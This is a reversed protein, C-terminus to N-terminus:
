QLQTITLSISGNAGDGGNGNSSSGGGGGSGYNFSSNGNKFVSTGGSGGYFGGGGGGGLIISSGSGGQGADIIGGGKGGDSNRPPIILYYNEVFSKLVNIYNNNGPFGGQLILQILNYVNVNNTLSTFGPLNSLPLEFEDLVYPNSDLFEQLIPITLANGGAGGLISGGGGGGGNSLTFNLGSSFGTFGNNFIVPLSEIHYSFLGKMPVPTYSGTAVQKIFVTLIDNQKANFTFSDTYPSKNSPDLIVVDSKYIETNGLKFMYQYFGTNGSPSIIFDLALYVPTDQQFIFNELGESGTASGSLSIIPGTPIGFYFGTYGTSSPITTEVASNGYVLPSSINCDFYGTISNVAGTQSVLVEMYEGSNFPVTFEPVDIVGTVPITFNKFIGTKSIFDFNIYCTSGAPQLQYSLDGTLNVVSMNSSKNFIIETGTASIGNSIEKGNLSGKPNFTLFTGSPGKPIDISNSIFNGAPGSNIVINSLFEAGGAGGAGGIGGTQGNQGPNGGPCIIPVFVSSLDNQQIVNYSISSTQGKTADTSNYLAGKGGAGVTYNITEGGRIKFPQNLIGYNVVANILNTDYSAGGGGGGGAAGTIGYGGGGGGGIIVPKIQYVNNNTGPLTYSGTGPTSFVKNFLSTNIGVTGTPGVPGTPGVTGQPGTSGFSGGGTAQLTYITTDVAEEITIDDVNFNVM